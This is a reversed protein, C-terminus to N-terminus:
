ILIMHPSQFLGDLAALFRGIPEADLVRHDAGVTLYATRAPVLCGEEVVPTDQIRGIGLIASEPPHILPTFLDIGMPGANSVTFTGGSLDEFDLRGEVFKATMENWERAIRDLPKSQLDKLVPILIGDGGPSSVVMGINISGKIVISDGELRSNMIPVEKLAEAAAKFILHTFSLKLGHKREFDGRLSRHFELLSDMRVMRSLGGDPIRLTKMTTDIIARRIGSLPLVRDRASPLTPKKLTLAATEVDERYIRGGPGTGGIRGLDVGLERAVKRALPTARLPAASAPAERRVDPALEEEAQAKNTQVEPVDQDTVLPAERVIREVLTEDEDRAGVVCLLSGVPLVQDVEAIKRLLVGDVPSEVEGSIKFTEVILLAQEKSVSAGEELLWETVKGETMQLGWIPMYVGTAM